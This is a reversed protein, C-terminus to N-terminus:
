YNGFTTESNKWKRKKPGYISWSPDRASGAGGWKGIWLGGKGKKEDVEMRGDRPPPVNIPVGLDGGAPPIDPMRRPIDPMRPPDAAGPRVHWVKQQPPPDDEDAPELDIHGLKPAPSDNTLLNNGLSKPAENSLFGTQPVQPDMLSDGRQQDKPDVWVIQRDGKVKKDLPAGWKDSVDDDDEREIEEIRMDKDVIYTDSHRAVNTILEKSPEKMGKQNLADNLWGPLGGKFDMLSTEMVTRGNIFTTLMIEAQSRGRQISVSMVDDDKGGARYVLVLNGNRVAQAWHKPDKLANVSSGKNWEWSADPKQDGIRRKGGSMQQKESPPTEQLFVNLQKGLKLFTEKIEDINFENLYDGQSWEYLASMEADLARYEQGRTYETNELGLKDIAFNYKGQVWKFVKDGARPYDKPFRVENVLDEPIGMLRVELPLLFVGINDKQANRIKTVISKRVDGVWKRGYHEWRAERSLRPM